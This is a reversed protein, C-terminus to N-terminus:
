AIDTLATEDSLAVLRQGSVPPGSVGTFGLDLDFGVLSVQLTAARGQSRLSFSPYPPASARAKVTLVLLGDRVTFADQRYELGGGRVSSGTRLVTYTTLTRAGPFHRRVAALVNPVQDRSVDCFVGPPCGPPGSRATAVSRTSSPATAPATSTSRHAAQPRPGPRLTAWLTVVVGLALVAALPWRRRPPRGDEVAAPAPSPSPDPESLFEVPDPV